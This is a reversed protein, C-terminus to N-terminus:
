LDDDATDDKPEPPKPEAPKRELTRRMLQLVKHRLNRSMDAALFEDLEKLPEILERFEQRLAGNSPDKKLAAEVELFRPMFELAMERMEKHKGAEERTKPGDIRVEGTAEDIIVDDPHPHIDPPELGERENKEFLPLHREKYEFARELVGVAVAVRGSEARAIVELLQRAAKTDGQAAARFMTRFLAQLAPIESVKDGERVTILRTAEDLAMTSFRDAIGIGASKKRPRGAPNGSRGKKFQDKVPPKRYNSSTKHHDKPM